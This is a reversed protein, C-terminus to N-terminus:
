AWTVAGIGGSRVISKFGSATACALDSRRLGCAMFCGIYAVNERDDVSRYRGVEVALCGPRARRGPEYHGRRLNQARSIRPWIRSPNRAWGVGGPHPRYVLVGGDREADGGEEGWSVGAQAVDFERVRRRMVNCGAGPRPRRSPPARVIADKRGEIDHPNVLFAGTLEDAAGVDTPLM